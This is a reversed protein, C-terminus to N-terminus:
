ANKKLLTEFAAALEHQGHGDAMARKFCDAATRPLALDLGLEESLTVVHDYAAADIDLAVATVDYSRAALMEGYRRKSAETPRSAVEDVYLEIPLGAAHCIAAGHFFSLLSGYYNAYIAKDFTPAGGIAEGVLRPDGGMAALVTKNADFATKSGSYIILCEHNRVHHPLGLISGDLYANGREEAWKGLARSEDPSVTSLQVLLAGNLAGAVEDSQLLSMTADHDSVCVVIVKANAVAARLSAAVSAGAKALPDCKPATRNWVTVRHGNALLADALASGMNGLGVVTVCEGATSHTM